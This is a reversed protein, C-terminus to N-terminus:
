SLVAFKIGHSISACRVHANTLVSCGIRVAEKLFLISVNRQGEQQISIPDDATRETIRYCRDGADSLESKGSDTFIGWGSDSGGGESHRGRGM